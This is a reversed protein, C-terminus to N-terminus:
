NRDASLDEVNLYFILTFTQSSHSAPRFKNNSVIPNSSVKQLVSMAVQETSIYDFLDQKVYFSQFNNNSRILVKLSDVEEEHKM